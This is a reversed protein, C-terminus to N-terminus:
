AARSVAAATTATQLDFYRILHCPSLPLASSPLPLFGKMEFEKQSNSLEQKRKEREAEAERQLSHVTELSQRYLEELELKDESIERSEQEREQFGEALEKYERESRLLQTTLNDIRNTLDKIESRCVCM